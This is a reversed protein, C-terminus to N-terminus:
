APIQIGRLLYVDDLVSLRVIGVLCVDVRGQGAAKELTNFISSFFGRSRKWDAM